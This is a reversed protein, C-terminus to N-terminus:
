QFSAARLTIIGSAEPKWNVKKNVGFDNQLHWLWIWPVYDTYIYDEMERWLQARRELNLEGQIAKFMANTKENASYQGVGTGTTFYASPLDSEFRNGAGLLNAGPVREGNIRTFFAAPELGHLEVTVGIAKWYGAIAESAEKDFTYQGIPFWLDTKFGNPHGAEALLQKARAVDYTYVNQLNPRHGDYGSLIFGTARGHARGGYLNKIISEVDVAHNLARRVRVDGLPSSNQNFQIFLVINSPVSRIEVDPSQVTNVLNPPLRDSIDVEGTRILAARSASDAAFRFQVNDFAVRTGWFTSYRKLTVESGKNWANFQWPGTGVPKQGFEQGVQERYKPPLLYVNSLLPLLFAAPGLTVIEVTQDDIKIAEKIANRVIFTTRPAKDYVGLTYIVADANFPEGNHFTAKNLHFRWRDPQVTEWKSALAPQITRDAAQIVLRDYLAQIVAVPTTDITPDLSNPEFNLGVRITTPTSSTAQAGTPAGGTPAPQACGAVVAVAILGTLIRALTSRPAPSFM